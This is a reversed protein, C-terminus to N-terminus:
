RSPCLTNPEAASRPETEASVAKGLAERVLDRGGVELIGVRWSARPFATEDTVESSVLIWYCQLWSSWEGEEKERTTTKIPAKDYGAHASLAALNLM